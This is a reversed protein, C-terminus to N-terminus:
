IYLFLIFASFREVTLVGIRRKISFLRVRNGNKLSKDILIKKLYATVGVGRMIFM